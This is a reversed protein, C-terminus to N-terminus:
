VNDLEMILNCADLINKCYYDPKIHKYEETPTYDKENGVYITTIRSKHGPVIDKWRDGIIYSKSRDINFKTINNEIMGNNPKYDPANKVLACQIDDVMLWESLMSNIESLNEKSMEGDEVGPQNTVIFTKFGKNRVVLFSELVHPLFRFESTHWPSTLRGDERKVLSNIVGDRDFFIAKQPNSFQLKQKM